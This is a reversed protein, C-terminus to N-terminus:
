KSLEDIASLINKETIQNGGVLKKANLTTRNAVVVTPTSDVNFTKALGDFFKLGSDIDAYDLPQYTVGLSEVAAQVQAPTPKKTQDALKQLARRILFYEKKNRVMLALNYPIYNKTEPHIARDVFIIGAKQMIAPYMSDLKPEIKRCAPCFWDTFIYVEVQSDRNGFVPTDLADVDEPKAVGLFAFFLTMLMISLSSLGFLTNKMVIGKNQWITQEKISGVYEILYIISGVAISGAISLCVPCWHGIVFKQISVFVIEAGLGSALLLGLLHFFLPRTRSYFFGIFGAAFYGLGFPEFYFGFFRYNHAEECSGSCMRLLSVITLIFGALLALGMGYFLPRKKWHQITNITDM